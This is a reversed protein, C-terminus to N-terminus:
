VLLGMGVGKKIYLGHHAVHCPEAILTICLTGHMVIFFSTPILNSTYLSQIILKAQVSGDRDRTETIKPLAM